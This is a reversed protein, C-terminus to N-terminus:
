RCPEVLHAAPVPFSRGDEPIRVDIFTVGFLERPEGDCVGEREGAGDLFRVPDGPRPLGNM